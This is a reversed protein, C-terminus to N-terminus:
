ETRKSAARDDMEQQMVHNKRRDDQRRSRDFVDALTHARRSKERWIAQDSECKGGSRTVTEELASITRELQGIFRKLERASHASMLAAERGLTENYERQYRRFEELRQLNEDHRRVSNSLRRSATQEALVALETIRKLRHSRTMMCLLVSKGVGSPAFLGLRQGRGVTLLANISRVGM